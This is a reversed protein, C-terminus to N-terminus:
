RSTRNSLQREERKGDGEPVGRRLPRRWRPESLWAATWERARGILEDAHSFDAPSIGLASPAPVVRLDVQEEQLGIAEIDTQMRRDVHITHAHLAIGLATRPAEKLASAYGTPLVYVQDAGLAVAHSVPAFNAVGGDMLDRGAIRVPPYVGPIATSALLATVANGRTLVVGGGNLVDTAVVHLPIRAEELRRIQLNRQIVVRLGDPSVLYGEGRRRLTAGFSRRPFVDERRMKRWIRALGDLQGPDPHGGVWAANLAGVSHGLLLDPWIGRESLAQLMGVQAAGLSAGGTLVFATSM